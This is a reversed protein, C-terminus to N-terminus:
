AGRPHSGELVVADGLGGASLGIDPRQNATPARHGIRLNNDGMRFRHEGARGVLDALNPDGARGHSLAVPVPGLFGRAGEVRVERVGAFPRKKAGSVESEQAVALEEDGATQLIQDDDVPAVKGGAVDFQRDFLAMLRYPRAAADSKRDVDGVVFAQYDGGFDLAAILELLLTAV